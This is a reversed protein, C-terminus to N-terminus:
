LEGTLEHNTINDYCGDGPAGWAATYHDRYAQWKYPTATDDFTQGYVGDAGASYILPILDFATPDVNRIDLPDHVKAKTIQKPPNEITLEVVMESSQIPSDNFGAPWRLFFIPRKWGDVFCPCAGDAPRDIEGNRFQRYANEGSNRVILYLMDASSRGSQHLPQGASDLYARRYTEYLPPGKKRGTSDIGWTSAPFYVPEDQIDTLREPLEMRMLDRLAALRVLGSWKFTWPDAPNYGFKNKAVWKMGAEDLPLKREQWRDMKRQVAQDLKAITARTSARASSARSAGLMGATLAGLIAIIAVSVLIEVVTFGRGRM